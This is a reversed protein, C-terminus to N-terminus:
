QATSLASALEDMTYAVKLGKGGGGGSAKLALPLGYREAAKRAARADAIVETGGPVVPVGAAVMAQRARIKDGMADIADPHPGIWTLGAETVSRAFGANEALFGYGPHIAQAGSRRAIDLVREIDLYSLAPSAPGLLYAEDALRVHTGNRDIESYVAVTQLGM